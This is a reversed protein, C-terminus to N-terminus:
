VFANLTWLLLCNQSQTLWAQQRQSSSVLPPDMWSSLTQSNLEGLCPPRSTKSPLRCSCAYDVSVQRGCPSGLALSLGSACDLVRCNADTLHLLECTAQIVAAVTDEPDHLKTVFPVQDLYHVVTVEDAAGAHRFRM